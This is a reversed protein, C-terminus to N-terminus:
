REIHIEVGLHVTYAPGCHLFSYTQLPVGYLFEKFKPWTANIVTIHTWSNQMIVVNLIIFFNYEKSTELWGGSIFKFFINVRFALCLAFMFLNPASRRFSVITQVQALTVRVLTTFIYGRCRLMMGVNMIICFIDVVSYLQFTQWSYLSSM